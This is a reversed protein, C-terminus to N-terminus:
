LSTCPRRRSSPRAKDQGRRVKSTRNQGTKTGSQVKQGTLHEQAPPEAGRWLETRLTLEGRCWAAYRADRTADLLISRAMNPGYGDAKAALAAPDEAFSLLQETSLPTDDLNRNM